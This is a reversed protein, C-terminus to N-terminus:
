YLLLSQLKRRAEISAQLMPLVATIERKREVVKKRKKDLAKSSLYTTPKTSQTSYCTSILSKLKSSERKLMHGRFSSALDNLRFSSCKPSRLDYSNSKKARLSLSKSEILPNINLLHLSPKKKGLPESQIYQKPKSVLFFASKEIKEEGSSIYSKKLAQTLNFSGNRVRKKSKIEEDHRKFQIRMVSLHQRQRGTWFENQLMTSGITTNKARLGKRINDHNVQIDAAYVQKSLSRKEKCADVKREQLRIHDEWHLNLDTLLRTTTSVKM